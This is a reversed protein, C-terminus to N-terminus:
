FKFLTLFQFRVSDYDEENRYGTNLYIGEFGFSTIPFTISGNVGYTQAGDANEQVVGSLSAMGKRGDNSFRYIASAQLGPVEANIDGVNGTIAVAADFSSGGDFPITKTLRIQTRRFGLDGSWWLGGFHVSRNIEPSLLDWYQGVLLKVQPQKWGVQVYAHRMRPIAKNSTDDAGAGYFDMELKGDVTVDKHGDAGFAFGLRTRRATMYFNGDDEDSAAVWKPISGQTNTTEYITDIGVFGYLRANMKSTVSQSDAAYATGACGLATTLCLAKTTSTM